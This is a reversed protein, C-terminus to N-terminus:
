LSYLWHSIHNGLYGTIAVLSGGVIVFSNILQRKYSTKSTNM